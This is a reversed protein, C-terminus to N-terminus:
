PLQDWLLIWSQLEKDQALPLSKNGSLAKLIKLKNKILRMERLINNHFVRGAVTISGKESLQKLVLPQGKIKQWIKSLEILDQRSYPLDRFFWQVIQEIGLLPDSKVSGLKIIFFTRLWMLSNELSIQSYQDKCHELMYEYTLVAIRAWLLAQELLEPGNNATTEARFVTGEALGLWNFGEPILSSDMKINQM